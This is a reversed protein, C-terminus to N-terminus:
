GETGAPPPALPQSGDGSVVMCANGSAQYQVITWTGTEPNVWLELIAAPSQNGVWVVAEGYKETLHASLVPYPACQSTQAFAATTITILVVMLAIVGACIAFAKKFM